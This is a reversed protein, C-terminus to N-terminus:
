KKICRAYFSSRRTARGSDGRNTVAVTWSSPSDPFLKGAIEINASRGKVRRRPRPCCM